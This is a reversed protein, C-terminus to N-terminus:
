LNLRNPWRLHRSSRSVRETAARSQTPELTDVSDSYNEPRVEPKLRDLSVTDQKGKVDLVFYKECRDLVQWQVTTQLPKQVSDQRM